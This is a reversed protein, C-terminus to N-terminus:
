PNTPGNPACSQGSLMELIPRPKYDNAEVCANIHPGGLSFAHTHGHLNLVGEKLDRPELPLPYHTIWIDPHDHAAPLVAVDAIAEFGFGRWDDLSRPCAAGQVDHNGIIIAKRGPCQAMWEQIREKEKWMALDGVMLLWADPPVQEVAQTLLHQNMEEVGFFPRRSYYIIKRHDLHLDSWVMIMGPDEQWTQSLEEWAGQTMDAWRAAERMGRRTQRGAVKGSRPSRGHDNRWTKESVLHDHYRRRLAQTPGREINM